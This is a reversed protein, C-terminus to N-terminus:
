QDAWQTLDIGNADGSINSVLTVSAQVTRTFGSVTATSTITRTLGTGSVTVACSGAAYPVTGGTYSPAQKLRYYAEEMCGDANQLARYSQDVNYGQLMEDISLLAITVGITLAISSIILVTVVGIYGHPQHYRTFFRTTM